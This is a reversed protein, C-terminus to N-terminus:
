MNAKAYLFVGIFKVRRDKKPVAVAAENIGVSPWAAVLVNVAELMVAWINGPPAFGARIIPKLPDVGPGM